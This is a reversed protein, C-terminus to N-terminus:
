SLLATAALILLWFNTAAYLWRAVAITLISGIRHFLRGLM